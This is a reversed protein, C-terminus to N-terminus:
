VPQKKFIKIILLRPIDLNELHNKENKTVTAAAAAATTDQSSIEASFVPMVIEPCDTEESAPEQVTETFAEPRHTSDM